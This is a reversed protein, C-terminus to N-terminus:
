LPKGIKNPFTVRARLRAKEGLLLFLWCVDENKRYHTRVIGDPYKRSLPPFRRQLRSTKEM